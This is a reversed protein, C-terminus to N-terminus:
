DIIARGGGNVSLIQGSIYSAADSALFVTAMGLDEPMALRGGALGSGRRKIEEEANPAYRTYLGETLTLGPAVVNVRVHPAFEIALTRTLNVIAAKTAGYVPQHPAPDFAAGSALNIISGYRQELMVRGVEKCCLFTSKLNNNVIADFGRESIDMFHAPFGGGANNVLIDVRGFEQIATAVMREVDTALRVDAVVAIARQGLSRVEQAVSEMLSESEARNALNIGALVLDAGSKAMALAIGKGIGQGSGTVIAVRNDLGFQPLPPM